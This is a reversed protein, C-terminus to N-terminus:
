WSMFVGKKILTWGYVTIIPNISFFVCKGTSLKGENNNFSTRL